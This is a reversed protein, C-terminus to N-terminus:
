RTYHFVAQELNFGCELYKTKSGGNLFDVTIEHRKNLVTKLHYPTYRKTDTGDVYVRDTRKRANSRIVLTCPTSEIDNTKPISQINSIELTDIPAKKYEELVLTLRRYNSKTNEKFEDYSTNEFNGLMSFVKLISDSNNSKESLSVNEQKLDENKENLNKVTLELSTNKKEIEDIINKYCTSTIGFTISIAALIATISAPSKLSKLIPKIRHMNKLLGFFLEQM